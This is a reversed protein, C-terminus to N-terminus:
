LVCFFLFFLILPIIMILYSSIEFNISSYSLKMIKMFSKLFFFNFFFMIFGSEVSSFFFFIKKLWMMLWLHLGDFSYWVYSFFFVKMIMIKNMFFFYYFFFCLIFIFFFIMIKYFLMMFVEESKMMMFFLIIGFFIAGILLRFMSFLLQINLEGSFFVMNGRFERNFFMFVVRFSYVSTLVSSIFIVFVSFFNLSSNYMSEIIIDKSFYGSLFPFGMLSLSSIILCMMTFPLSNSNGLKRIDQIDLNNHIFVGSSIFLLAKFFGHICLHLFALDVLGLSLSFVMFGLQSTTSFAVIKKFDMQFCASLSAFFCTLSGMLMFLSSFWDNMMIVSDFRILFYVGSVVMTSSHLLASVPTPGEMASPLWMHLGFQASKGMVMFLIFILMLLNFDINKSFMEVLCFDMDVDQFYLCFFVFLFFLGMDGIRNYFIAQLSCSVAFSRSFWWSILLFSMIGVGEWGIFFMMLNSATTLIIMAFMFFLLYIIFIKKNNDLSMYYFSFDIISWTIYIIFFIFFLSIFDFKMSIIFINLLKMGFQMLSLKVVSLSFFIILLYFLVSGFFLFSCSQIMLFVIPLFFLLDMVVKYLM